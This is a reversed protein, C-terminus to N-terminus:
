GGREGGRFIFNRGERGERGEEMWGWRGELCVRIRLVAVVEAKKAPM